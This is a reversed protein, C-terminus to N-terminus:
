IILYPGTNDPFLLSPGVIFAGTAKQSESASNYVPSGNPMVYGFRGDYEFTQASVKVDTGGGSGEKRFVQLLTEKPMGVDDTIVRSNVRLVETLNIPNGDISDFTIIYDVPTTNFRNLLRLSQIRAISTAGNNLFRCFVERVKTDNYANALEADTDVIVSIQDYNSKDKYDKTPDTQKTYFHIQTIRDEDRTEQRIAKINLDDSADIIQEDYVPHTTAVGIEQAIDDWWISIGLDSLEGLLQAVGTPRTITTELLTTAMWRVLEPRWKTVLPCFPAPVKAYNVLLDYIFDEPRVSDVVLAVQFTDGISHAAGTSGRLARGTLTIVDVSRTYSVIESGITAFGSSPYEAGIGAPTLNFTDVGTNLLAKDIKGRSPLPALAKKDDALALVDKGEITVNGNDDPGDIETIIFHRTSEVTLVGDEIYADVQRLPRGAFHPWQAKRRTWYTGFDKPNYGVGNFQAAGSIRELYYKDVESDNDVFDKLKVSITGRRGFAGMRPDAGAINVSSTFANVSELTPYAVFGVPISSRNNIFRQTKAIGKLFASKVSCTGYTNFCKRPTTASLTATCPATGFTRDCYDIDIEIYQIYERNGM